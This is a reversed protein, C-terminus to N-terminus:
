QTDLVDLFWIGLFLFIGFALSCDLVLFRLVYNIEELVQVFGSKVFDLPPNLDGFKLISVLEQDFQSDLTLGLEIVLDLLYIELAPQLFNKLNGINHEMDDVELQLLLFVDDSGFIEFLLIGKVVNFSVHNENKVIDLLWQGDGWVVVDLLGEVLQLVVVSELVLILRVQEAGVVELVFQRRHLFVDV